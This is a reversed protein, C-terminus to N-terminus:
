KTTNIFHKSLVKQTFNNEQTKKKHFEEIQNVQGKMEKVLNVVEPSFELNM